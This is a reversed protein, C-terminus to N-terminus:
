EELSKRVIEYVDRSLNETRLIRELQGRMLGGRKEEYRRWFTLPAALRAAIQPNDAQLELIRDALFLYGEGNEAHFRYHNGTAFAGILARVKNPNRL